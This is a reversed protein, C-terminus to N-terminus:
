GAESLEKVSIWGRADFQSENTGFVYGNVTHSFEMALIRKGSTAFRVEYNYRNNSIQTENLEPFSFSRVSIEFSLM